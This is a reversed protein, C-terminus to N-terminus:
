RHLRTNTIIIDDAMTTGFHLFGVHDVRINTPVFHRFFEGDYSYFYMAGDSTDLLRGPMVAVRVEMGFTRNQQTSVVTMTGDFHREFLSRTELARQSSTSATLNIAQTALAPNVSIRVDVATGRMNDGNIRMSRGEAATTVAQMSELSLNGPNMLRIAPTTDASANNIAERTLAPAEAVSISATGSAPATTAAAAAAPPPTTAAPPPTTTTTTAARQWRAYLTVDNSLTDSFRWRTGGSRETYWGVLEYGRRSVNPTSVTRGERVRRTIEDPSGGNGVFTVLIDDYSGDEREWRAHLNLSRDVASDFHWREGGRQSTYWGTLVWGDRTVSPESAREDNLVTQTTTAPTGGNGRFTVTHRERAPDALVTMPLVTFLMTLALLLVALKVKPKNKV